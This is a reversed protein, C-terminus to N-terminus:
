GPPTRPPVAARIDTLADDIGKVIQKIRDKQYELERVVQDVERNKVAYVAAALTRAENVDPSYAHLRLGSKEEFASILGRLEEVQRHSSETEQDDRMGAEEYGRTHASNERATAEAHLRHIISAVFAVELQDELKPHLDKAKVRSHLTGDKRLVLLGWKPPLDEPKVVIVSPAVIWWYRVQSHFAEAKAQDKMERLWDSRSVKIEYGEVHCGRSPFLGISVADARRGEYGVEELLLHSPYACRKRLAARLDAATIEAQAPTAPEASPVLTTQGATM